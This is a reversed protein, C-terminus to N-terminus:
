LSGDVNGNAAAAVPIKAGSALWSRLERLGVKRVLVEGESFTPMGPKGISRRIVVVQPTGLRGVYDEAAYKLAGINRWRRGASVEHFPGVKQLHAVGSGVDSDISVGIAAFGNNARTAQAGVAERIDSIVTPLDEVQCWVCTSSGIYVLVIENGDTLTDPALRPERAPWNVAITPLHGARVAGIVLPAMFGTLVVAFHWVKLTPPQNTSGFRSKPSESM